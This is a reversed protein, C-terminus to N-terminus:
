RIVDAMGFIPLYMAVIVGGVLTGVILMLVPEMLATLRQLSADLREEYFRAAEALLDALAGTAEGVAVLRLGVETLLGEGRLAESLAGGERIRVAVRALSASQAPVDVTQQLTQLADLLPTGSALLASLARTTHAAHLRQRLGRVSPFGLLSGMLRARWAPQHWLLVTAFAGLAVAWPLAGVLGVLARTPWPLQAGVDAYLAAFRPLVFMFIAGLVLALALLLFAPYTLAQALRRQLVQRRQLHEAHHRLATVLDGTAEGARLAALLLPDFHEGHLACARSLSLGERVATLVQALSAGLSPCDPRAQALELAQAVPLGARLLAAFEQVFLLRDAGHVRQGLRWTRQPRLREVVLGQARLADALTEAGVAATSWRRRTGDPTLAVIDFRPM